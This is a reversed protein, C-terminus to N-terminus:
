RRAADRTRRGGGSWLGDRIHLYGNKKFLRYSAEEESNLFIKSSDFLSGPINFEIEEQEGCVKELLSKITRGNTMGEINTM